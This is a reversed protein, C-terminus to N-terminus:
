QSSGGPRDTVFFPRWGLRRGPVDDLAIGAAEAAAAVRWGSEAIRKVLLARGHFTMRAKQHINM